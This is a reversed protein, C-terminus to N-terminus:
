RTQAGRTRDAEDIQTFVFRAREFADPGVRIVGRFPFDLSLTLFVVLGILLALTGIMATQMSTQRFGFLYTFAITIFGGAFVVSWMINNLGSADEALRADRDDASQDMAAVMLPYLGQQRADHPEVLRVERAIAEAEHRTPSPNRGANLAPWGFQIEHEVYLRLDARIRDGGTFAVADRYVTALSSAEDYTRSDASQYREWVGVAIFGLIVAYMVGVVAFIFGTLDNHERRMEAPVLRAAVPAISTAIGVFGGIVLIAAPVFPLEQFWNMM